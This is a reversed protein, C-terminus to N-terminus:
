SAQRMPTPMTRCMWGKLMINGEEARWDTLQRNDGITMTRSRAADITREKVDVAVDLQKM